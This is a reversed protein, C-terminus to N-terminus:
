PMRSKQRDRPSPSTYLLCAAAYYTEAQGHDGQAEALVGWNVWTSAKLEDPAEAAALVRAYWRGAEEYKGAEHARLGAKFDSAPDARVPGSGSLAALLLLPWM